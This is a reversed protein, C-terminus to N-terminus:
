SSGFTEIKVTTTKSVNMDFRVVENGTFMQPMGNGTLNLFLPSGSLYGVSSINQFTVGSDLSQAITINLASTSDSSNFKIYRLMFVNQGGVIRHDLPNLFLTYNQGKAMATSSIGNSTNLVGGTYGTYLEFTTWAQQKQAELTPYVYGATESRAHLEAYTMATFVFGAAVAIAALAALIIYFYNRKIEM